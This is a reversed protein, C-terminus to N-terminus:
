SGKCIFPSSSSGKHNYENIDWYIASSALILQGGDSQNKQMSNFLGRLIKFIPWRILNLSLPSYEESFDLLKRGGKKPTWNIGLKKERLIHGSFKRKKIYFQDTNTKNKM